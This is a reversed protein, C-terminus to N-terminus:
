FIIVELIDPPGKSLYRYIQIISVVPILILVGLQLYGGLLRAWNYWEKLHTVMKLRNHYLEDSHSIKYKMISLLVLGVPLLVNWSFAIFASLTENLKLDKVVVDSTFPRGRIMFITVLYLMWIILFWWAGGFIFDLYRILIIGNDTVLPIGLFLGCICSLLIASPTSGVASAIPFWLSCAQAIGAYL